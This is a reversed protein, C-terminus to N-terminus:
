RRSSLILDLVDRCSDGPLNIGFAIVPLNTGPPKHSINPPKPPIYRSAMKAKGSLKSRMNTATNEEKTKLM